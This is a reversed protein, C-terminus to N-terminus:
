ALFYFRFRAGNRGLRNEFQCLRVRTWIFVLVDFLLSRHADRKLISAHRDGSYCPAMLTRCGNAGQEAREVGVPLGGIKQFLLMPALSARVHVM